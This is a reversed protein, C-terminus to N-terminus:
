EYRVKLIIKGKHFILGYDFRNFLMSDYKGVDICGASGPRDGGHIFFGSRGYTNTSNDPHLVVRFHGWDGLLNRIFYKIGRVESIEKPNIIYTGEPLPGINKKNQDAATTGPRGSTAPIKRILKGTDDYHNLYKGNFTLLDNFIYVYVASIAGDMFEGGSAESAIGGIM